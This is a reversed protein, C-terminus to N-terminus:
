VEAKFPFVFIKARYIFYENKVKYVKIKLVRPNMQVNKVHM